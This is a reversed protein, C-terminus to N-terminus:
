LVTVRQPDISKLYGGDIMSRFDPLQGTVLGQDLMWKAEQKFLLLLSNDLRTVCEVRALHKEIQAIPTKPLFEQVMRIAENPKEELFEQAKIAARLVASVTKENESVFPKLGALVSTEAYVDSFFEVAKDDGLRKKSNENHPGWTAIADVRGEGLASPMQEPKLDILTVESIDIDLFSLYQYLFFEGNTKSTVGITRNNLDSPTKIGKDINGVVSTNKTSTHLTTLVEISHGQMSKLVIPTEYVTALDAKNDLVANLADRGSTYPIFEVDLGQEEFYGLKEALYVIAFNAQQAEAIRISELAPPASKNECGFLFFSLALIFITRM